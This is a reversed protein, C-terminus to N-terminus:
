WGVQPKESNWTSVDIISIRKEPKMENSGNGITPMSKHLLTENSEDLICDLNHSKTKEDAMLDQLSLEQENNSVPDNKDLNLSSLQTVLEDIGSSERMVSDHHQYIDDEQQQQLETKAEVVWLLCKLQHSQQEQALFEIEELNKELLTLQAVCVCMHHIERCARAQLLIIHPSTGREKLESAYIHVPLQQSQIKDIREHIHHLRQRMESITDQRTKTAQERERRLREIETRLEDKAASREHSEQIIDAVVNSLSNALSPLM